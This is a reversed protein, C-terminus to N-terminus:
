KGRGTRRTDAEEATTGPLCCFAYARIDGNGTITCAHGVSTDADVSPNGDPFEFAVDDSVLPESLRQNAGVASCLGGTM